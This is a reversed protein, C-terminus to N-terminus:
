GAAGQTNRREDRSVLGDRIEILRGACEMVRPDHTSFLFTTEHEKNMKAMVALVEQGTKSDLNATPEDALIVRPNKVLARAIAVRQNQGGSLEGPKRNELGELGVTALTELISARMEKKNKGYVLQAAFEVNEYATLVPILNYSQFIFGINRRRIMALERRSLGDLKKGELSVHGASPTDLCGIINLLTTKGSGSPGFITAFEGKEVTLDIGQLAPVEISGQRYLKKVGNLEVQAM